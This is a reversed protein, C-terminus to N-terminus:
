TDPEPVKPYILPDSYCRCMATFCSEQIHNVHYQAFFIPLAKTAAVYAIEEIM